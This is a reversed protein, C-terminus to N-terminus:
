NQLKGQLVGLGPETLSSVYVTGDDATIAGTTLAYTGAPDQLDQSVNGNEDIEIIFGYREPKPRVAEPLRMIMKRLFPMDSINDVLENRPSVLGVWFKGDTSPNINDPFGPLNDIITERKGSGDLALKIISYTGTEVILLHREDQTLAIGNAFSLEDLVIDTKGTTPDYKLVRGNPGHEMLDLLSGALTGGSEKAGFKTSADSFYVVGDKTIDLDDAYLIPSGGSTERAIIIEKSKEFKVLGQYADAGYLIGDMGFEIGLVRGNSKAYEKIESTVPDYTLIAGEHSPMYIKGDSGQAVDEPGSYAGLGIVEVDELRNNQEFDGVYGANKPANWSIPEIPVPWLLLYAIVLALILGVWKLWGMLM